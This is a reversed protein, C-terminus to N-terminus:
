SGPHKCIMNLVAQRGEERVVKLARELAPRVESAEEVREGYGGSATVLVEYEPSPLLDSLPFYNRKAAWGDPYMRLNALRVANWSQNNFIV